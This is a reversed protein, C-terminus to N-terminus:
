TERALERLAKEWRARREDASQEWWATGREGLGQKAMQVRRRAPAPDEDARLLQGVASRAQGLYSRLSAAVHDPLAPDERRWRRGDVVFYRDDEEGIGSM